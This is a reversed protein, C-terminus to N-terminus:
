HVGTDVGGIAGSTEGGCRYRGAGQPKGDVKLQQGVVLVADEVVAIGVRDGKVLVKRERRRGM